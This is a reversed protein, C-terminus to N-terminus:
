RLLIRLPWSFRAMSCQNDCQAVEVVEAQSLHLVTGVPVPQAVTVSLRSTYVVAAATLDSSEREQELPAVVAPRCFMSFFGLTPNAKAYQRRKNPSRRKKKRKRSKRANRETRSPLALINPQANRETRSPLALINPSRYNPNRVFTRDEVDNHVAYCRQRRRRCSAAIM